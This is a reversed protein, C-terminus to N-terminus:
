LNTCRGKGLDQLAEDALADLRSLAVDTEFQKDWLIADFETFWARFASLDAPALERVAQEIEQVKSM